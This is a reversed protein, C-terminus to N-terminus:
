QRTLVATCEPQPTQPNTDVTDRCLFKRGSPDRDTFSCTRHIYPRVEGEDSGFSSYSLSWLERSLYSESSFRSSPMRPSVDTPLGLGEDVEAFVECSDEESFVRVTGTASPGCTNETVTYTVSDDDHNCVNPDSCAVSLGGLAFVFGRVGHRM